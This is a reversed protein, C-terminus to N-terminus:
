GVATLNFISGTLLPNTNNRDTSSFSAATDRGGSASSLETDGSGEGGLPLVTSDQGTNPPASPEPRSHGPKVEQMGPPATFGGGTFIGDAVGQILEDFKSTGTFNKGYKDEWDTMVGLEVLATPSAAGANVTANGKTDSSM